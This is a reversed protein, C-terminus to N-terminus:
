LGGGAGPHPASPGSRARCLGGRRGSCAGSRRGRRAAHRARGARGRAVLIEPNRAALSLFVTPDESRLETESKGDLLTCGLGQRYIATQRALGYASASVRKGDRDVEHQFYSLLEYGKGTLDEALLSQPDRGSVFVGGCLIQATVGSGLLATRYLRPLAVAATTALAVLILRLWVKRSFGLAM